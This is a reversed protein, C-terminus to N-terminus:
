PHEPVARHRLPWFVLAAGPAPHFREGNRPLWLIHFAEGEGEYIVEHSGRGLEFVPGAVPRGDIELRGSGLVEEPTVFYRGDRVALFEGRIRSNEVPPAGDASSRRVFPRGWIWVVGTEDMPEFHLYLFEQLGDPLFVFQRDRLAVTCGTALIGEVVERTLRDGLVLRVTDDNFYFFSVHPRTVYRGAADFVPDEARTLQELKAWRERQIRNDPLALLGQAALTATGLVLGPVALLLLSRAPRNPVRVALRLVAVLGRATFVAFLALFPALSYPYPATQLTFSLLTTALAPILLLDRHSWPDPHRVLDALSRGVGVGAVAFLPGYGAFFPQFYITWSFGPYHREHVLSWEVAWRQFDDLSGTAALYVVAGSAGALFGGLFALPHGLLYRGTAMAPRGRYRVLRVADVLFALAFVSGYALVKESAWVAAALLFGSAAGLGARRVSRREPSAGSPSVSVLLLALLFLPFALNDPRIEVATAVWPWIWFLASATVLAELRGRPRNLRACAWVTAALPIAMAFRVLVIRAPDDGLVAFLPALLQLLLPTHHFLFDRYPLEGHAIAWAGHAYTLEDVAFRQHGMQHVAVLALVAGPVLLLGLITRVGREPDEPAHGLRRESGREPDPERPSM